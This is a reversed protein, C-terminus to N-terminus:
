TKIRKGSMMKLQKFFSVIKNIMNNSDNTELLLSFIELVGM